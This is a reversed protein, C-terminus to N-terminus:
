RYERRSRSDRADEPDRRKQSQDLRDELMLQTLKDLREIVAEHASVKRDVWWVWGALVPIGALLLEHNV